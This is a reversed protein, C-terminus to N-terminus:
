VPIIVIAYRSPNIIKQWHWGFWLLYYRMIMSVWFYPVQIINLFWYPDVLLRSCHGCNQGSIQYGGIILSDGQYYFFVGTSGEVYFPTGLFEGCPFLTPSHVGYFYFIIHINWVCQITPTFSIPPYDMEGLLGSLPWVSLLFLLHYM